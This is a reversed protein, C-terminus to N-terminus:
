WLRGTGKVVHTYDDGSRTTEDTSRQAGREGGVSVLDNFENTTGSADAFNLPIRLVALKGGIRQFTGVRQNMERTGADTIM